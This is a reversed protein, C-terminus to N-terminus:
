RKLLDIGILWHIRCLYYIPCYFNNALVIIAHVHACLFPHFDNKGREFIAERIAYYLLWLSWIWKIKKKPILILSSRHEHNWNWDDAFRVFNNNNNNALSHICYMCIYMSCQVNNMRFPFLMINVRLFIGDMWGNCHLLHLLSRVVNRNFIRNSNIAYKQTGTATATCLLQVTQFIYM